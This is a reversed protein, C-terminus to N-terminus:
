VGGEGGALVPDTQRGVVAAAERMPPRVVGGSIVLRMGEAVTMELLLIEDRPLLLLFGSTPNPTTPVFVSVLGQEARRCCEDCGEATVFALVFCGKRPYEIMAVQRFMGNDGGAMVAHGIQQVTSYVTRVMPVRLFVRDLLAIAKRGVVNRAILGVLAVGFVLVFLSFMRVSFASFDNQLLERVYPSDIHGLIRPIGGTLLDFIWDAIALTVFIPVIVLLGTLFLNRLHSLRVSPIRPPGRGTSSANPVPTPPASM